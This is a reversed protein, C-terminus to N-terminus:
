ELLFLGYPTALQTAPGQITRHPAVAGNLGSINDYSLIGLTSEAIYATGNRSVVISNAWWPGGPITLTASPTQPGHLASANNFIDVAGPTRLVYLRNGGDVFVDQVWQFTPSTITRSASVDGTRTSASAFVLVNNANANAVYLNDGADVCIGLPANLEGSTATHFFRTPALNGNFGPQHPNLFVLIRNNGCNSVFLLDRAGNLAIDAPRNMETAAGSVNRTPALNGGGTSANSFTAISPAVPVPNWPAGVNLVQLEGASNVLVGYPTTFQPAAGSLNTSPAINGTVTAPNMYSTVSGAGGANTIFLQPTPPPPPGCCGPLAEGLPMIILLYLGLACGADHFQGPSSM